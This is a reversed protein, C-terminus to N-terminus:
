NINGRHGLMISFRKIQESVVQVDERKFHRDLGKEISNEAKELLNIGELYSVNM